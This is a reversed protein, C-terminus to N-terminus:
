CADSSASSVYCGPVFLILARLGAMAVVLLATRIVGSMLAEEPITLRRAVAPVGMWEGGTSKM